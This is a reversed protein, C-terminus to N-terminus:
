IVPYLWRKFRSDKGSVIEEVLGAIKQTVPGPVPKLVRDEIQRIPLVKMPSNSFFLEEAEFLWDPALRSERTEIGLVEVAELISRRTISPLVTGLGPTLLRGDKVLFVSETAGEAIFGQTDLLIAQEFGRKQVDLRAVMGNLYNAAAKAPIPVTQPDLKRWKSIGATTSIGTSLDRNFDRVPDFAFISVDLPNQPPYVEVSLQPYYCIIKIVGQRLSNRNVTGATALCFEEQSLPLIMDLLEATKFLRQIHDELRFIVTGSDVAHFCLVEFIASGRGLSHSLLHVTAEQWGTYKGNLYIIRNEM